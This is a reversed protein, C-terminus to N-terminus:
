KWTLTNSPRTGRDFHSSMSLRTTALVMFANRVLQIGVYGLVFLGGRDDFAEPIAIAGFLSALMGVLLIARVPRTEGDFWNTM